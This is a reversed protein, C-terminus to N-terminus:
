NLLEGDFIDIITQLIPEKKKDEEFKAKKDGINNVDTKSQVNSPKNISPKDISNTNKDVNVSNISNKNINSKDVRASDNDYANTIRNNDSERTSGHTETL